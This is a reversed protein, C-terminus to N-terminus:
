LITSSARPNEHLHMNQICNNMSGFGRILTVVNAGTGHALFQQNALGAFMVMNTLVKGLHITDKHLMLIAKDGLIEAHSEPQLLMAFGTRLTQEELIKIEKVADAHEVRQRATPLKAVNAMVLGLPSAPAPPTAPASASAEAPTSANDLEANDHPEEGRLTLLSHDM